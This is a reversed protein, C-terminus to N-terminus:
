SSCTLQKFIQKRLTDPKFHIQSSPIQSSSNFVSECVIALVPSPYRSYNRETCNSYGTDATFGGSNSAINSPIRGIDHPCRFKKLKSEIDSLVRAPLYELEVWVKFVHKGTGLFLNHMPDIVTFKIPDFYPLALLISYRVGYKSEMQQIIDKYRSDRQM